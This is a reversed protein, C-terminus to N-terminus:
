SRRQLAFLVLVTIIIAWGIATLFFLFRSARLYRRNLNLSDDTWEIDGMTDFLKDFVGPVFASLREDEGTDASGPATAVLYCGSFMPLDRRDVHEGDGRTAFGSVLWEQLSPALKGGIRALFRYLQGNDTKSLALTARFCQYIQSEFSACACQALQEVRELKPEVWSQLGKGFRTDLYSQPSKGKLEQMEATRRVFVAFDDDAELGTVLATVHARLGVDLTLQRSDSRTVDELVTAQGPNNVPM